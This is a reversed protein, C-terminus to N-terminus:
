SRNIIKRRMLFAGGLISSLGLLMLLFSKKQNSKENVVLDVEGIAGILRESDFYQYIGMVSLLVGIIILCISTYKLM